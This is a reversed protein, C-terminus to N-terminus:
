NIGMAARSDDAKKSPAKPGARPSQNSSNSSESTRLGIGRAQLLGVAVDEDPMSDDEDSEELGTKKSGTKKTSQQKKTKKKKPDPGRAKDGGTSASEATVAQEFTTPRSGVFAAALAACLLCTVVIFFLTMLEM